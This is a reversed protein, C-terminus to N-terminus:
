SRGSDNQLMQLSWRVMEGLTRDPDDVWEFLAATIAGMVAGTAVIADLRSAGTEILADVIVQETRQNNEWVRARLRPHDAALRIRLRTTEDDPEDIHQWVELLGTVVRELAPLAPDTAGVFRGFVPDFPDDLVVAEKTPFHRFFTMHSYGAAAAIEEVTVDDFGREAFLRLAEQQIVQATSAM